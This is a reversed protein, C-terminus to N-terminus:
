KEETQKLDMHIFYEYEVDHFIFIEDM